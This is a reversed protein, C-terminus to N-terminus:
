FAKPKVGQRYFGACGAFVATSAALPLSGGPKKVCSNKFPRAM